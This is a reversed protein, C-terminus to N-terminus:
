PSAKAREMEAFWTVADRVTERVPRPNWHLERRAKSHDMAKFAGSLFVADKSLLYDKKGTLKYFPEAIRAMTEAVWHPIIKPPKQGTEAVALAYFDRNSIYENAIIYREGVRGFQEALLAAEAVDRIDVTPQSSEM